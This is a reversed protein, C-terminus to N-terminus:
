GPFFDPRFLRLGAAVERLTQEPTQNTNDVVLDFGSLPFDDLAKESEHEDGAHPARLLRVVFAGVQRAADVENPFRCDTCFVVNAASSRVQNKWARTWAEKDARRVWETGVWQLVERVTMPGSPLRAAAERTLQTLVTKCTTVVMGGGEAGRVAEDFVRKDYGAADEWRIHSPTNKDADTGYVHLPSLGLVDVCFEKLPGAFPRTVHSLHALPGQKLLAAVTDKGGGKKASLVVVLKDTPM